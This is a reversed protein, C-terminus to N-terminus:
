EGYHIRHTIKASLTKNNKTEQEAFAMLADRFLLGLNEHPLDILFDCKDGGNAVYDSTLVNYMATDVIAKKNLTMQEARDQGIMMQLQQSVPWGGERAIHHLWQKLTQGDIQVVVLMNDFPMLEFLNGRTVEGESLNPIRLGGYNSIALHLSDPYQQQAITFIADCVWNGLLSEPKNKPMDMAATALVVGMEESVQTKYPAILAVMNEDTVAASDLTYYQVESKQVAWYNKPQCASIVIIISAILALYNQM